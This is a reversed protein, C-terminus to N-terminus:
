GEVREKVSKPVRSAAVPMFVHGCNYGGAYSWITNPDTGRTKGAWSEASWAEIESRHFIKGARAVCFPRSDRVLGGAYEFYDLGLDTSVTRMYSRDTFAFADFAIQGAWRLLRGQVQDDGLIFSRISNVADDFRVGNTMAALLQKRIPEGFVPDIGNAGLQGLTTRQAASITAKWNPQVSFSDLAEALLEDNLAGQVDFEQLYKGLATGYEGSMLDENILINTIAQLRDVNGPTMLIVGGRMDMSRLLEELRSLMRVQQREVVSLFEEPVADLREVRKEILDNLAM